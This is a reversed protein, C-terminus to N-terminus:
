PVQLYKRLTELVRDMDLPKALHADMGAELCAAVDDKFVNATMAVIPLRKRQLMPLSRM